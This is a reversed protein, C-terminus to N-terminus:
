TEFLIGLKMRTTPSAISNDGTVIRIRNVGEAAGNKENKTM